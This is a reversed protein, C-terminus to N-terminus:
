RMARVRDLIANAVDLKPQRPLRETKGDRTLITVVNTESEFGAGEDNLSNLVIMDANKAQLKGRANDLENETELAFGVLTTSKKKKEGLSKLIDITNILRIAELKGTEKKIKAPAPEAPAYDAVAAAMVVVDVSPAEKVVANHMQQATEVNVRRVHRPTELHVPGTVLTVTAGRQAAARALSFGMKGSSRNGIYRVPDIPEFTPGATVLVSVSRFDEYTRDLVDDVFRVIVEIEPLRGPGVLGSAHEGEVPPIVFVGRERLVALNRQTTDNLFMDADMTPALVLPCRAALAIVTLLNDALGYTLKAATHASAPAILLLNAWQALDIHRTGIESSTSQDRNWLDVAVENESLTSFTLPSVFKTAADTMVVKVAAGAKKLERVLYCSKYAAIGGTVGLVINKGKLM